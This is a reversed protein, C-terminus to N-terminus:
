HIQCSLRFGAAWFLNADALGKQSTNWDTAKKNLVYKIDLNQWAAVSQRSRENLKNQLCTKASFCPTLIPPASFSKFTLPPEPHILSGLGTIANWSFLKTSPGVPCSTCVVLPSIDFLLLFRLLYVAPWNSLLTHGNAWTSFLFAARLLALLDCMAWIEQSYYFVKCQSM